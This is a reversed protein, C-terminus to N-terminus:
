RPEQRALPAIVLAALRANSATEPTPYIGATVREGPEPVPETNTSATTYRRRLRTLVSSTSCGDTDLLNV